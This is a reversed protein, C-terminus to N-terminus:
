HASGRRRGIAGLIGIGGVLLATGLYAPADAEGGTRPLTPPPAGLPPPPLVDAVTTVVDSTTTESTPPLTSEAAIEPTSTALVTAPAAATTPPSTAPEATTTTPPMTSTTPPLTTPPLTTPPLTTTTSTSTTTTPTPPRPATVEITRSTGATILTQVGHPDPAAPPGAYVVADGPVRASATVFAGDDVLLITAAATGDAGTVVEFTAGDTSRTLVVPVGAFPAGGATVVVEVTDHSAIGLSMEADGSLRRAEAYLAIALDEIGQDGTTEALTALDPVLPAEPTDSRASGAADQAYFHLVAWLAAATPPDTTDGYRWTLYASRRRGPDNPLEQAVASAPSTSSPHIGRHFTCSGVRYRGTEDRFLWQGAWVPSPSRAPGGHHLAVVQGACRVDGAMDVDGPAFTTHEICHSPVATGLPGAASRAPVASSTVLVVITAARIHKRM